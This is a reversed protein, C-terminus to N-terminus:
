LQTCCHTDLVFINM